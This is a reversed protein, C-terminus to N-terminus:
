QKLLTNQYQDATKPLNRLSRRHNASAECVRAARLDLLDFTFDDPHQAVLNNRKLQGPPLGESQLTTNLSAGGHTTAAVLAIQQGDSDKQRVRTAFM